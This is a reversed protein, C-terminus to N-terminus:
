EEEVEELAIYQMSHYSTVLKKKGGLDSSAEQHILLIQIKTPL